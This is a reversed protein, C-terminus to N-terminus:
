QMGQTLILLILHLMVKQENVRICDYLVLLITLPMM